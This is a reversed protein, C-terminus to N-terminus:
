SALCLVIEMDIPGMRNGKTVNDIAPLYQLNSPVHLGSVRYGQATIGRLPVIHDVHSGPPCNAYILAIADLDAWQPCAQLKRARHKLINRSVTIKWSAANKRHNKCGRRRAAKGAETNKRWLKGRRKKAARGWATTKQYTRNHENICVCCVRNVVYREAVHGNTCPKGTFYRTSGAEVAECRTM